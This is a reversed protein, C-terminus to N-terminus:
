RNKLILKKKNNQKKKQLSANYANVADIIAQRNPAPAPGPGPRPKVNPYVPPPPPTPFLPTVPAKTAFPLRPHVPTFSVVCFDNCLFRNGIYTYPIYAFGKYGWTNGWSNAVIFSGGNVMDDYGVITMCHGGRLNEHSVDPHPVVGYSSVYSTYFSDYLKIGFIIPTKYTVLIQKLSIPDSTVPFYYNFGSVLSADKYTKFDPFRPFSNVPYYQWVAEPSSGHKV